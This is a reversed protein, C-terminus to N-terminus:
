RPRAPLEDIGLQDRRPGYGMQLVTRWRTGKKGWNVELVTELRQASHTSPPTAGSLGKAPAPDRQNGERDSTCACLTLLLALGGFTLRVMSTHAGARM